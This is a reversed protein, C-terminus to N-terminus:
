PFHVETYVVSYAVSTHFKRRHQMVSSEDAVTTEPLYLPKVSFM